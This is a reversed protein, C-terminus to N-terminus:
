GAIDIAKVEPKKGEEKPVTATLVGNEMAANVQDMRVNEPLRFLRVFKGSSREVRYWRDTNEEQEMSREGSVQLVRGDEVELKVEEKKLGPLDVKIVHAELTEKWNVRPNAVAATERGWSPANAGAGFGEFPDFIDPSFPDFIHKAKFAM